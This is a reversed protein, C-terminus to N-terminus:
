IKRLAIPPLDPPSRPRLPAIQCARCRVPEDAQGDEHGDGTAADDALDDGDPPGDHAKDSEAHVVDDGVHEQYWDAYEVARWETYAVVDPLAHNRGQNSIRDAAAEENTHYVPSNTWVRVAQEPLQRTSVPIEIHYAHAAPEKERRASQPIYVPSSATEASKSLM